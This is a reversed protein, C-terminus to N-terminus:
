KGEVKHSMNLLNQLEANHRRSQVSVSFRTLIIDMLEFLSTVCTSTVSFLSAYQLPELEPKRQQFFPALFNSYDLYFCMTSSTLKVFVDRPVRWIRELQTAKQDPKKKKKSMTSMILTEKTQGIRPRLSKNSYPILSM